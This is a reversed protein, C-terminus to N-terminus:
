MGLLIFACTGWIFIAQLILSCASYMDRQSSMPMMALMIVLDATPRAGGPYGSTNLLAFTTPFLRRRQRSADPCCSCRPASRM